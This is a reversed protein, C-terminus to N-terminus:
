WSTRFEFLVARDSQAADRFVMGLSKSDNLHIRTDTVSSAVAAGVLNLASGTIDDRSVLRSAYLQLERQVLARNNIVSRLYDDESQVATDTQQWAPYSSPMAAYGSGAMGKDDAHAAAGLAVGLFISALFRPLM